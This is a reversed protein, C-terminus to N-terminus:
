RVRKFKAVLCFLGLLGLLSLSGGGGGGSEAVPQSPNPNQPETAQVEQANSFSKVKLNQVEVNMLYEIGVRAGAANGAEDAFFRIQFSGNESSEFNMQGTVEDFSATLIEANVSERVQAVSINRVNVLASGLAKSAKATATPVASATMAEYFQIADLKKGCSGNECITRQQGNTLNVTQAAVNELGALANLVQAANLDPKEIAASLIVSGVVPASFSTGSTNVLESTGAPDSMPVFEGITSIKLKDSSNSFNSLEGNAQLSGVSIVGSCNAPQTIFGVFGENGASAIVISGADIADDIAAQMSNSCANESGFSLNLVKAPNPNNPVGDIALGAAWRISNEVSFPKSKSESFARIQVFGSRQEIGAIGFQNNGIASYLSAIQGAHNKQNPDNDIDRADGFATDSEMFNAESILKSDTDNTSKQSRGVDLIAVVGTKSSDLSQTFRMLEPVRPNYADPEGGFLANFNSWGPDTHLSQNVDQNKWVPAPDASKLTATKRLLNLIRLVDSSNRINQDEIMLFRGQQAVFRLNLRNELNLKMLLNGAFEGFVPEIVFRNSVVQTTVKSAEQVKQLENANACGFSLALLFILTKM